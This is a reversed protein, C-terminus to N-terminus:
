LITLLKLNMGSGDSATATWAAVEVSSTDYLLNTGGAEYRRGANINDHVYLDNDELTMRVVGAESWRFQQNSANADDDVSFDM